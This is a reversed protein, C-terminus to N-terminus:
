LIIDPMAAFPIDDNFDGGQPQAQSTAQQRPQDDFISVMVMDKTKPSLLRQKILVGALNVTPDILIYEGNNGSMLVGLKVYEWKNKGDKDTYEGVKIMLKKM